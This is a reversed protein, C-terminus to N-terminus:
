LKFFEEGQDVYALWFVVVAIIISLFIGWFLMEPNMSLLMEIPNGIMIMVNVKTM